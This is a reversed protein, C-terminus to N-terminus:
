DSNNYSFFLSYQLFMYTAYSFYIYSFNYQIDKIHCFCIIINYFCLQNYKDSLIVAIKNATFLNIHYEDSKIKVILHM